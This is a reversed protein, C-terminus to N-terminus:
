CSYSVDKSALTSIQSRQRLILAVVMYGTYKLPRLKRSVKFPGQFKIKTIKHGLYRVSLHQICPSSKTIEHTFSSGSFLLKAGGQFNGAICYATNTLELYHLANHPSRAANHSEEWQCQFHIIKNDWM